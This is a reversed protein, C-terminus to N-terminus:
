FPMDDKKIVVAFDMLNDGIMRGSINYPRDKLYTPEVFGLKQADEEYVIAAIRVTLFRPTKVKDGIQPINQNNIM